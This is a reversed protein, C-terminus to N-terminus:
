RKQPYTVLDQCLYMKFDRKLDFKM